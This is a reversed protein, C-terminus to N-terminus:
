KTEPPVPVPITRIYTIIDKVMQDDQLLPAIAAMTAGQPDRVPDAYRIGQQYKKIQAMFYWDELHRLPPGGTLPNGEANPGHCAMCTIYATKGADPDGRVERKGARPKMDELFAAVAAIDNSTTLLRAMSRMQMGHVDKPHNGRLGANFKEIQRSTYWAPMGALSPAMLAPNGEAKQGHCATCLTFLTRARSHDDASLAPGTLIAGLFIVCALLRLRRTIM